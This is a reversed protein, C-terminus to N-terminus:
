QERKTGNEKQPWSRPWDEEKQMLLVSMRRTSEEPGMGRTDTLVLWRALVDRLEAVKRGRTDIGRDVCALTVEESILAPVGGAQMLLSDDIALFRLRNGAKRGALSGPVWGVRDWLSSVVGLSRALHGVVLNYPLEASPNREAALRLAEASRHRRAEAAKRIKDVQAPIRCTLPAVRPVALVVFPTFEGCCLLMLAFLPVRSADHRWRSQLLLHSRTHALVPPSSSSPSSSAAVVGKKPKLAWLLRTNTYINRIGVKYFAVYAKATAYLHSFTSADPKRTPLELPPPRTTEPPNAASPSLIPATPTQLPRHDDAGAATSEVPRSQATPSLRPPSASLHLHRPDHHQRASLLLSPTQHAQLSSTISSAARRSNSAYSRSILAPPTARLVRPNASRRM